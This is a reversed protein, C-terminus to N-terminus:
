NIILNGTYSKNLDLLQVKYLYIGKHLGNADWLNNYNTEHFVQDGNQNFVEIKHKYNQIGTIEWVDNKGDKTQTILNYINILQGNNNLECVKSKKALPKIDASFKSGVAINTNLKLEIYNDAINEVNSSSLFSSNNISIINSSIKRFNSIEQNQFNLSDVAIEQIVFDIINHANITASIWLQSFNSQPVISDVTYCNNTSKLLYIQQTFIEPKAVTNQNILDNSLSIKLDDTDIENDTCLSLRYFTCAKFSYNLFVGSQQNIHLTKNTMASIGHSNGWHQVCGNYINTCNVEEFGLISQSYTIIPILFIILLFHKM